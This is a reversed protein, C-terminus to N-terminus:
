VALHKGVNGDLVGGAEGVQHVLGLGREGFFLFLFSLLSSRLCSKKTWRGGLDVARFGSSEPGYHKQLAGPCASIKRYELLLYIKLHM